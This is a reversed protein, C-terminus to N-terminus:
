ESTTPFRPHDDGEVQTEELLLDALVASASITPDRTATLLTPNGDRALRRLHRLGTARDHEQLEVTYRRSFEEAKRPEHGFSTRLATSPSVVQRWEDIQAAAKTLGRPWLRDVLVRTGDEPTALEYVRRVRVDHKRTM